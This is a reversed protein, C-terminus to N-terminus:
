IAGEPATQDPDASNAEEKRSRIEVQGHKANVDARLYILKEVKYAECKSIAEMLQKDAESLQETM